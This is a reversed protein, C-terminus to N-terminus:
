YGFFFLGLSLSFPPPVADYGLGKWVDSWFFYALFHYRVVGKGVAWDWTYLGNRDWGVPVDM